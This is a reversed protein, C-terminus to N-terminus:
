TSCSSTPGPDRACCPSGEAGDRASRVEHGDDALVEELYLRIFPEDDIVLIRAL